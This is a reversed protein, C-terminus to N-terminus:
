SPMPVSLPLGGGGGNLLQGNQPLNLQNYMQQQQQQQPSLGLADQTGEDHHNNGNNNSNNHKHKSRGNSLKQKKNPPESTTPSGSRVMDPFDVCPPFAVKTGSMGNMGGNAHHHAQLVRNRENLMQARRQHQQLAQYASSATSHNSQLPHRYHPNSGIDLDDETDEDDADHLPRHTVSNSTGNRTNRTRKPSTGNASHMSSAVTLGCGLPLGKRYCSGKTGLKGDWGAILAQNCAKEFADQDVVIYSNTEWGAWFPIHDSDDTNPLDRVTRGDLPM